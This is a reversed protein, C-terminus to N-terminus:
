LEYQEVRLNQIIILSKKTLIDYNFPQGSEHSVQEWHSRLLSKLDENWDDNQGPRLGGMVMIWGLNKSYHSKLAEIHQSIGWCWSCMPDSFYILHGSQNEM